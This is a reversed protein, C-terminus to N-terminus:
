RNSAMITQWSLDFIDNQYLSLEQRMLRSFDHDDNLSIVTCGSLDMPYKEYYARHWKITEIASDKELSYSHELIVKTFNEQVEQRIHSPLMDYEQMTKIQPWDETRIAHYCEIKRHSDDPTLQHQQMYRDRGYLVWERCLCDRLPFDLVTIDIKQGLVKRVHKQNVCHTLIVENNSEDIMDSTLYRSSFRQPRVLHDYSRNLTQYEQGYSYRLYRNGGAGPYFSIVSKVM